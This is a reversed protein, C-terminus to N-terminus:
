NRLRATVAVAKNFYYTSTRTPRSDKYDAVEVLKMQNGALPTLTLVRKAVRSDYIARYVSGVKSVVAKGWDCDKPSCSGFTHMKNDLGIQFKTIGRTNQDKNFYTGFLANVPDVRKWISGGFGGGAAKKFQDANVMQLTLNGKGKLNCKPVDAWEVKFTNGSRKGYAVNAFGPKGSTFNREGFWFVHNGYQAVYYNGNDNAKWKGTVNGMATEAYQAARAKPLNSPMASRTWLSGGFPGGSLRKFSNCSTIQLVLPGHNRAKGKPVDGFIGTIKNGSRTGCYVNAWGGSPHEGFWLVRNGTQRVYYYGGDNAKYFGSIDCPNKKAKVWCARRGINNKNYKIWMYGNMGWGTGWSNKILWAGKSDDWGVILVAHNSSPNSYNSNMDGFVGNTYNQFGSTVVVSSKVAGYKCIAAKIQAVSAIKAINNDPRCIGWAVASYPGGGSPCSKDSATYGYQSERKVSKNNKVMWDFVRWSLGGSCSGGGSCDLVHQESADVSNPAGGNVKLYSSEYMAIAAFAWCSGCGGQNRVPSVDNASRADYKSANAYCASGDLDDSGDENGLSRLLQQASLASTRALNIEAPTLEAEGTIQKIDMGSVSTYGVNFQLNQARIQQRLQLLQNKVAPPAQLERKQYYGPLTPQASLLITSLLFLLTLGCNAWWCAAGNSISITKM